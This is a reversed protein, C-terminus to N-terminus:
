FFDAPEDRYRDAMWIDTHTDTHTQRDNIQEDM